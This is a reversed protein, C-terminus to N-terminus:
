NNKSVMQILAKTKISIQKTVQQVLRPQLVRVKLPSIMQWINLEHHSKPSTHAEQATFACEKTEHKLSAYFKTQIRHKIISELITIEFSWPTQRVWDHPGGRPRSTM